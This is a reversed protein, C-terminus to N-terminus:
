IGKEQKKSILENYSLEGKQLKEYAIGAEAGYLIKLGAEIETSDSSIRNSQIVKLMTGVIDKEYQGSPLFTYIPHEGGELYARHFDTFYKYFTARSMKKTNRANFAGSFSVLQVEEEIAKDKIDSVIRHATEVSTPKGTAGFVMLSDHIFLYDFDKIENLLKRTTTTKLKILAKVKDLANFRAQKEQSLQDDLLLIM